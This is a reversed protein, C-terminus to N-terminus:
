DDLIKVTDRGKRGGEVPFPYEVSETVWLRGRDDFNMNMPKHIDPESAVLQMEFHAPVHFTKLEEAPTKAETPAIIPPPPQKGKDQTHGSSAVLITCLAASFLITSRMSVESHPVSLPCSM